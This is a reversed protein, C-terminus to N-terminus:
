IEKERLAEIDEKVHSPTENAKKQDEPQVTKKPQTTDAEAEILELMQKFEADSITGKEKLEILAQIREFTTM